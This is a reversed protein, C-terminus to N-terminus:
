REDPLPTEREVARDYGVDLLSCYRSSSRWRINALGAISAHLKDINVAPGRERRQTVIESAAEARAAAALRAEPSHAPDSAFTYLALPDSLTTAFDIEPKVVREIRERPQRDFINVNRYVEIIPIADKM